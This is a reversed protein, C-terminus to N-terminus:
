YAILRKTILLKNKFSLPRFFQFSELIINFFNFFWKFIVFSSTGSGFFDLDYNLYIKRM